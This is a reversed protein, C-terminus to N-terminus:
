FIDPRSTQGLVMSSVMYLYFLFSFFVALLAKSLSTKLNIFLEVNPLVIAFTHFWYFMFSIFMNRVNRFLVFLILFSLYTFLFIIYIIYYISNLVLYYYLYYLHVTCIYYFRVIVVWRYPKFTCATHIILRYVASYSLFQYCIKNVILRHLWLERLSLM